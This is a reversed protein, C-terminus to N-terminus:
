FQFRKRLAEIEDLMEKPLDENIQDTLYKENADIETKWWEKPLDFLKDLDVDEEIGGLPLADAFM